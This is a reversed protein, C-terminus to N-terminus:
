VRTVGIKSDSNEAMWAAIKEAHLRDFEDREEQTMPRFHHVDKVVGNDWEYTVGVYV